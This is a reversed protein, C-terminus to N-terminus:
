LYKIPAIQMNWLSRREAPAWRLPWRFFDHAIYVYSQRALRRRKAQGVLLGANFVFASEREVSLETKKIKTGSDVSSVGDSGTKPNIEM